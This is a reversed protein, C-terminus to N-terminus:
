VGDLPDSSDVKGSFRLTSERGLASVEMPYQNNNDGAWMQYAVGIQRLHSYCSLGRGRKDATLAPLIMTALIALFAIVFLVEVLTLAHNRQKSCITKM